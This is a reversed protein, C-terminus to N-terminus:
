CGNYNNIKSHIIVDKYSGNFSCHEKLIAEKSYGNSELTQYLQPRLDFAYTHIKHFNLENFGVKEILHLYNTWFENFHEEELRTDMVFSLEANKDIWNIHVLGGYGILEDNKFFSFLLQSPNEEIFLKQIVEEFYINQKELTLPEAQRLHYLQENRWNMISIRDEYRIPIIKYIGTRFSAKSILKYTKPFKM